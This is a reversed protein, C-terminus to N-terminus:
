LKRLRTGTGGCRPCDVVSGESLLRGDGNCRPCDRRRRGGVFSVVGYAIFFFVVFILGLEIM